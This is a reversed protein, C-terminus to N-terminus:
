PGLWHNASGVIVRGARSLSARPCRFLKQMNQPPPFLHRYSLCTVGKRRLIIKAGDCVFSIILM